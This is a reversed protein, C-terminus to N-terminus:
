TLPLFISGVSFAYLEIWDKFIYNYRYQKSLQENVVVAVLGVTAHLTEFQHKSFLESGRIELICLSVNCDRNQYANIVDAFDDAERTCLKAVCGTKFFHYVDYWMFCVLGNSGWGDDRQQGLADYLLNKIRPEEAQNNALVLQKIPLSELPEDFQTWYKTDNKADEIAKGM